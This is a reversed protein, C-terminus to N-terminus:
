YYLPPFKVWLRVIFLLYSTSFLSIDSVLSSSSLLFIYLLPFHFFLNSVFVSTWRLIYLLTTVIKCTLSFLIHLSVFFFFHTSFIFFQFHLSFDLCVILIKGGSDSVGFSSFCCISGEGSNPKPNSDVVRIKLGRVRVWQRWVSDVLGRIWEVWGLGVGM